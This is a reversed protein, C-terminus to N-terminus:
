KEKGGLEINSHVKLVAKAKHWGESAFLSQMMGLKNFYGQCRCYYVANDETSYTTVSKDLGDIDMACYMGDNDKVILAIGQKKDNVIVDGINWDGESTIGTEIMMKKEEEEDIVPKEIDLRANVKHVMDGDVAFDAELDDISDSPGYWPDETRYASSDQKDLAMAVIDGNNDKVILYLESYSNDAIVDGLRWKANDKVEESVSIKM